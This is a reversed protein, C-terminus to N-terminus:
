LLWKIAARALAKTVLSPYQDNFNKKAVAAVDQVLETRAQYSDDRGQVHVTGYAVRSKQPILRPLAIPVVYGQIGYFRSRARRRHWARRSSPLRARQVVNLADLTIPLTLFRDEKRPAKGNYSIVVLHALSQTETSSRWSVDPFAQRYAEHESHLQLDETVRLLGEKLLRPIVMGSWSRSVRYGEYAKRYAIFADNLDGAVEYVIGTVYRAFPDEHYHDKETSDTLVNLRHDIKRAEILAEQIDQLFAYNFAKIVNIMVQEYPDGRYPLQTDNVLLATVEDRLRRTYFDEVLEDAQELVQNSAKYQGALQLTMGRDMWYLLRNKPGYDDEANQIIRAAQELQGARLSDEVRLYHKSSLGCADLLPLTGLLWVLLITHRLSLITPVVSNFFSVLSFHFHRLQDLFSNGKSRLSM